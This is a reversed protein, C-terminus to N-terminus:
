PRVSDTGDPPAPDKGRRGESQPPPSIGPPPALVNPATLDLRILMGMAQERQAQTAAPHRRVAELVTRAAEPDGATAHAQALSIRAVVDNPSREALRQLANRGEVVQGTQMLSAAEVREAEPDGPARALLARASQLAAQWRGERFAARMADAQLLPSPSPTARPLPVWAALDVAGTVGALGIAAVIACWLLGQALSGDKLRDNM